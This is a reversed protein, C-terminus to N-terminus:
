FISWNVGNWIVNVAGYNIAIIFSTRDDILDSGSTSVTVRKSVFTGAQGSYDKIIYQKGTTLSSGLPLTITMGNDVGIYYDSSGPSTNFICAGLTSTITPSGGGGSATSPGITIWTGGLYNSTAQLIPSGVAFLDIYYYASTSGVYFDIDFVATPNQTIFPIHRYMYTQDTGHVEAVNSGIAVGTINDEDTCFVGKFNYVGARSFQLFGGATRSVASSTGQVSFPNLNLALTTGYIVGTYAPVSYTGGITFYLSGGFGLPTGLASFVNGSVILNGTLYTNGTPAGPIINSTISLYSVNLVSINSEGSVNINTLIGVSTINPQSSNIVSFATPM